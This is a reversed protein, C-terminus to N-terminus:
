YNGEICDGSCQPLRHCKGCEKESGNGGGVYDEKRQKEIIEWLTGIRGFDEFNIGMIM